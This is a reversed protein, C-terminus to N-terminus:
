AVARRTREARVKAEEVGVRAEALAEAAARAAEAAEGGGDGGSAAAAAAAKEAAAADFSCLAVRKEAAHMGAEVAELLEKNASENAVRM